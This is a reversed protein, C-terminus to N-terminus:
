MTFYKPGKLYLPGTWQVKYEGFINGRPKNLAPTRYGAPKLIDGKKWVKHRIVGDEKVIFTHVGGDSIFKYYFKTEEMKFKDKFEQIRELARKTVQALQEPHKEILDKNMSKSMGLQFREYDKFVIAKFKDIAEQTAKDMNEGKNNINSM